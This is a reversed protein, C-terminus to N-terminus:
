FSFRTVVHFASISVNPSVPLASAFPFIKRQSKISLLYSSLYAYSTSNYLLFYTLSCETFALSFDILGQINPGIFTILPIIKQSRFFCSSFFCYFCFAIFRQSQPKSDLKVETDAHDVFVSAPNSARYIPMIPSLIHRKFRNM